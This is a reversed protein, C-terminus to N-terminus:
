KKLKNLLEQASEYYYHESNSVINNLQSVASDNKEDVLYTLSLYWEAYEVYLTDKNKIIQQFLKEARDYEGVEISAIGYYYTISMDSKEKLYDNFLTCANQYDGDHFYTIGNNIDVDGRTIGVVDVTKYYNHFLQSNDYDKKNLLTASSILVIALFIIAYKYKFSKKKYKYIPAYNENDQIELPQLMLLGRVLEKIYDKNYPKQIFYSFSKSFEVVVDKPEYSTLAIIYTREFSPDKKIIDAVQIGNMDPGLNIDMLIVVYKNNKCLELAEEATKAIQTNCHESLIVNLLEANVPDDEVILVSPINKELQKVKTRIKFYKVVLFSYAVISLIVFFGLIIEMLYLNILQM